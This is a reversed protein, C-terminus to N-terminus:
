QGIFEGLPRLTIVNDCVIKLSVLLPVALLAGAVGWIWGWFFLSIFIAVPNLQLRRGMILPTILNGELANISFYLTPAAIAHATSDFSVFAVLGIISVGVLPGLYPVFNLVGVMFGWLVPNPMGLLWLVTGVITGLATNIISYTFLYRSLDREIGQSIRVAVLKQRFIPLVRVLKRLFLDGSALLFFLLFFMVAAGALMQQTQNLLTESMTPQGVQVQQQAEGDDGSTIEDVQQTAEQVREVSQQLGRLKREAQRLSEPVREAWDSAPGSLSYLGYGLAGLLGLVVLAAGLATPVHVRELVRMIPALLFNLVVAIVIPLFFSAAAYLTYFCALVFLGVAAVSLPTQGRFFGRIRGVNVHSPTADEGEADEGEADEGEADEGEADEGEAKEQEAVEEVLAAGSAAESSIKESSSM